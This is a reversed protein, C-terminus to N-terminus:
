LKPLATFTITNSYIGSSQNSDLEVKFGFQTDDPILSLAPKTHTLTSAGPVAAFNAGSGWKIDLGTGSILTFGFGVGSWAIPAAITGSFDSISHGASTLLQNKKIYLDYGNAANTTVTATISGSANESPKIQGLNLNSTNLSLSLTTVLDKQRYGAVNMQYNASSSFDTGAEGMTDFMLYNASGSFDSGGINISDFPIEYNTGSMGVALASGPLLFLVIFYVFIRLKM